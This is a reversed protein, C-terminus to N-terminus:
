FAINSEGYVEPLLEAHLIHPLTHDLVEDRVDQVSALDAINENTATHGTENIELHVSHTNRSFTGSVPKRPTYPKVSDPPSWAEEKGGVSIRTSDRRTWSISREVM